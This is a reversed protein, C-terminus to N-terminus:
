KSRAKRNAITAQDRRIQAEIEAIQSELRKFQRYQDSKEIDEAEAASRQLLNQLRNYDKELGEIEQQQKQIAVSQLRIAEVIDNEEVSVFSRSFGSGKNALEYITDRRAKNRREQEAEVTANEATAASNRDREIQLERDLEKNRLEAARHGAAVKNKKQELARTESQLQQLKLEEQQRKYEIPELRERNSNVRLEGRQMQLTDSVITQIESLDQRNLKITKGTKKDQWDFIMHAHHNLEDRSKGEDRHIFIQFCDIGKKEKLVTALQQLDQITHEAKLNVVAERIPEANKQLKRGSVAKCHRAITKERDAIEDTKWSENNKVLEPFNYDLPVTRENHAESNPLVVKFNISAKAEM